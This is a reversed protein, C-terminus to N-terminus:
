SDWIFINVWISPKLPPRRLFAVSSKRFPRLGFLTLYSNYFIATDVKESFIPNELFDLENTVIKFHNNSYDVSPLAWRYGTQLKMTHKQGWFVWEWWGLSKRSHSLAKHQEVASLYLDSFQSSWASVSQQTQFGGSWELVGPHGCTLCNQGRWGTGDMCHAAWSVCVGFYGLRPVETGAQAQSGRGLAASLVMLCHSTHVAAGASVRCGGAWRRRRRPVHESESRCYDHLCIHTTVTVSYQDKCM